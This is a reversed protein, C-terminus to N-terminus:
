RHGNPQKRVQKAMWLDMRRAVRNLEISADLSSGPASAELSRSLAVLDKVAKVVAAAGAEVLAAHSRTPSGLSSSSSSTAGDEQANAGVGTPTPAAAPPTCDRLRAVRAVVFPITRVV